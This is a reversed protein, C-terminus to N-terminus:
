FPMDELDDAAAQHKYNSARGVSSWDGQTRRAGETHKGAMGARAQNVRDKKALDMKFKNAVNQNNANMASYRMKANFEDRAAAAAANKSEVDIDQGRMNTGLSAQKGLADLARQRSQGAIDLSAGRAQNASAQNAQMQGALEAGSGSMGRRGMSQQVAGRNSAARQDAGSLAEEYQARAQADLGGQDVFSQLRQLAASQAQRGEGAGIIERAAPVEQALMEQFQPVEMDSLDALISQYLANAKDYDNQALARGILSLGIEWDAGGQQAIGGAMQGWMGM